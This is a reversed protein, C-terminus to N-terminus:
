NEGGRFDANLRRNWAPDSETAAENLWRMVDDPRIPLFQSQEVPAYSGDAQLREVVLSQGRVLRWVEVVGLDKYITPRDVQPYSVDIEIAMDPRPYDAPVLSRRALAERAVRIKEPDFYYSLDAELGRLQSKWTTQGCTVHDIDMWSTIANLIRNVLEKDYEHVNSAVMIELDKGDYAMRVRQGEVIAESLTHYTHWDVGRYVIRVIGPDPSPASSSTPIAPIELPQTPAITSM